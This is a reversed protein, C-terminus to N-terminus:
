EVRELKLGDIWAKGTGAMLIGYSIATSNEPVNLVIEYIEWDSTGTIARDEMNDFSVTEMGADVRMWLGVWSAVNETKVNATLVIRKGLYKDPNMSTMLTGFGEIESATSEIFGCNEAGHSVLPDGGSEYDHLQNGALHWDQGFAIGAFLLLATLIFLKKKIFLILSLSYYLRIM